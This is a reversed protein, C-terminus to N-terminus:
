QCSSGRILRGTGAGGAAPDVAVASAPPQVTYLDHTWEAVNGGMDHFGLPNAAFSGVPATAAHGDDFDELVQAVLPQAKRDAFNGAGPPVPLTDGWPYKRLAAGGSWRAVWEWEAETPLRYGNTAPVVPALRGGQQAYAPELGDQQSLWNAYAAADQWSVNVVPQRDLDLTSQLIFGSRHSPRFQRFEANTVERPSLYFRRELRVPRQAENARRGAERRPSGMTFEGAPVLKLEQGAKARLTPPLGVIAPAPPTAGPASATPEAMAAAGTDRSVGELLTVDIRQPLGPRPTVTVKHPAYGSRRIEIVHATAPLSLTQSAAGRAAGDVFLQADTPNARVIVEGLIPVLKFEAVERGGAAVTIEREAAEYGDRLVSVPQAIGPRVDIELPARGRYAGGVTVNAGSPSSRVVLRGDPLGLQVPGLTLPQNAQVQVDSIWPKFGERRLEVRHSGALLELQLPTRGRPEGGVRVEADAPETAISVVSWAPTLQPELKQTRGLGEIEVETSFDLYRETDIALAHKGAPLEFVGPAEGAARGDIVVQGTVPLVIELRGPLPVLKYALRQNREKSIEVAVRLPAYGEHEAELTYAGPRLLHNTGLRLGPWGGAFRLQQPAPDIAVQVPVSTFVVAAVAALAVLSVVIGIRRWPWPREAEVETEVSGRFAVPEIREDEDLGTGAIAASAEVAPPATVNGAAGAVVELVRRGDDLRLKLRGGGVDLVDGSRLWASDAIRAGNHLVKADASAPQVFLQGDHQALWAQIGGSGPLMVQAGDGGLSLPFEAAGVVREGLPERLILDVSM